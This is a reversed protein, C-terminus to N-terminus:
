ILLHIENCARTVATYACKKSETTKTNNLIDDIDAYVDYFNSGQAKHCTISYGYNVNAFPEVFIKNWQKWLPKIISKEVLSPCSRYQKIMMMSFNKILTSSKNKIDNFEDIVDDDIVILTIDNTVHEGFKHVRLIWCKFTKGLCFMQNLGKILMGLKNNFKINHKSKKIASNSIPSFVDLPVDKMETSIIKIQESTYLCQKIFKEGLELGYFDSLMLIDGVVFKKLEGVNGNKNKFIYKRILENYRNTQKNTWTVIIPNEGNKISKIFNNFWETSTKKINVDWDYLHVGVKGSYKGINPYKDSGIWERFTNCVKTVNGIKSRVVNKLLFTEMQKLENILIDYRVKMVSDMNTNVTDNIEFKMIRNYEDFPLDKEGKCFISSTDEGVPPLQAPDGTFVVKPVKKVDKTVRKIINRIDEFIYDIININIMSCEDVLVLEFQSMMSKQKNNRRFITEGSISYDTSFMLLKHITMFQINIGEQELFHLEEDFNFIDDLTKDFMTEIIKKLHPRFKGKIVNVAKNTPASMVVSNIYGNRVMYSVYEVISTTKGTGAYGYLGYVHRNNDIIFKYLKIMAKKQEKTLDITDLKTMHFRINKNIRFENIKRDYKFFKDFAKATKRKFRIVLKNKEDTLKDNSMDNIQNIFHNINCLSGRIKDFDMFYAYQLMNIIKNKSLLLLVRKYENSYKEDKTLDEGCTQFYSSINLM